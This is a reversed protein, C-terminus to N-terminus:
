QIHGPNNPIARNRTSSDSRLPTWSGFFVEHSLNANVDLETTRNSSSLWHETPDHYGSTQDALAPTTPFLSFVVALTLFLALIRRMAGKPKCIM